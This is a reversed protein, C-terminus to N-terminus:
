RSGKGTFVVGITKLIIKIDEWISFNDIYELDLKVVEEFDKIDSRGSVQWLGTIGPRISLRTKHWPEYQRYEDLTPPRTGVLSMDGRLVNWFQPLEDIGTKRLFKGVRTIRPDDEMKFMLGKSENQDMLEKKRAEADEYMSRFKYFDFIRGNKGVRKQIFIVPGPSDIKIIPLLIIYAILFIVMGILSGAIDMVRKLFLRNLPIVNRAVTVVAHNGVENMYKKGPIDVQFQDIDIDVKIGMDVLKLMVDHLEEDTKYEDYSIFAEDVQNSLAYRIIDGPVNEEFSFTKSVIRNWSDSHSFRESIGTLKDKHALVIIHAARGDKKRIQKLRSKMSMRLIWTIVTGFILGYVFVLRSLVSATHALYLLLVTGGVILVQRIIVDKLEAFPGRSIYHKLPSYFVNVIATVLLALVMIWWADGNEDIGLFRQYRLAFSIIVGFFTSMMDVILLYFHLVTDEKRFITM